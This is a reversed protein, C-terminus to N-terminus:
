ILSFSILGYLYRILNIQIIIITAQITIISFSTYLNVMIEIITKHLIDLHDESSHQSLLYLIRPLHNLDIFKFGESEYDYARNLLLISLLADKLRQGLFVRRINVLHHPEPCPDSKVGIAKGTIHLYSSNYFFSLVKLFFSFTSTTLTLITIFHNSKAYRQLCFRM